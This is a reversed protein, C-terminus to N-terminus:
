FFQGIPFSCLVFIAILVVTLLKRGISLSSVDDLPGPHSYTSMFLVFFAMPWFGEIVLWLISLLTLVMRIKDGALSRAVHGGDLMAAPLLNLMTVLLGVWGALAIPHVILSPKDPLSHPLLNLVSLFQSLLTFLLPEPLISVNELQPAPISLTLGFATVITALVFGIIPGSSGVDFLADKNSPLSKQM